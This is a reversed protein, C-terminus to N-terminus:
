SEASVNVRMRGGRGSGAASRPRVMGAKLSPVLEGGGDGFLRSTNVSVGTVARFNNHPPISANTLIVPSIGGVGGGVWEVGGFIRPICSSFSFILLLLEYVFKELMRGLVGDPELPAESSISPTHKLFVGLGAKTGVSGYM